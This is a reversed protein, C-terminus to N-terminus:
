LPATGYHRLSGRATSCSPLWKCKHAAGGETQASFHQLSCPRLYRSIYIWIPSDPLHCCVIDLSPNLSCNSGLPCYLETSWMPMLSFMSFKVSVVTKAILPMQNWVLTTQTLSHQLRAVSQGWLNPGCPKCSLETSHMWEDSTCSETFTLLLLLLLLTGVPVVIIVCRNYIPVM